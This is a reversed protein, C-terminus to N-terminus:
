MEGGNELRTLADRIKGLTVMRVSCMDTEDFVWRLAKILAAISILAVGILLVRWLNIRLTM